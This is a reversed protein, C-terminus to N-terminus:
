ISFKNKTLSYVIYCIEKQWDAISRLVPIEVIHCSAAEKNHDTEDRFASNVINQNGPYLLVTTANKHYKSYTYMQRLDDPSPKKGNLNKWKTDLILFENANMNIRIDPKLRMAYGTEPKWFYFISQETIYAGPIHKQLHKKLSKFVFKEWLLNMDFLLALVNNKGSSLDPHYNLLLLKSILIAKKYDESKRNYIIRDFFADDVNLNKMEPFNLLLAGIRSSLNVNSNIEKLLLITKYLVSNFVHQTDYTTTKVYFREQHVLNQSINKAFMLTGKLAKQNGEIKRYQKILGKNILYEVESIFLEIYLDLISNSKLKLNTQSPASIQFADVTRLMDILINRWEEKGKDKNHDSKPLIEYTYKGVKLVGVFSNFKVGNHILSYYPVGGEGYYKRLGELADLPLSDLSNNSRLSQHEFVTFTNKAELKL